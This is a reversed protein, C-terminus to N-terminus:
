MESERNGSPRVSFLATRGEGKRHTVYKDITLQSNDITLFGTGLGRHAIYM